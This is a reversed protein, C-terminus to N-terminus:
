FTVRCDLLEAFPIFLVARSIYNWYLTSTTIQFLSIGERDEGM